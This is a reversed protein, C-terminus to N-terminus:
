SSSLKRKYNRLIQKTYTKTDHKTVALKKLLIINKKSLYEYAVTNLWLIVQYIASIHKVISGAQRSSYKLLTVYYTLM